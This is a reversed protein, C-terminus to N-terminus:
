WQKDNNNYTYSTTTQPLARKEFVKSQIEENDKM